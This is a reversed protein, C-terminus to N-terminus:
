KNLIENIKYNVNRQAELVDMFRQPGTDDLLSELFMMNNAKDFIKERVEKTTYKMAIALENLDLRKLIEGLLMKDVSMILKTFTTDYKSIKSISCYKIIKDIQKALIVLKNTRYKEPIINKNIIETGYRIIALYCMEETIYKEPIFQLVYGDIDAALKYYEASKQGDPFDTWAITGGKKLAKLRLEITKYKEPMHDIAQWFTDVAIECLRTTIYKEPIYDLATWSETVALLAIEYNEYFYGSIRPNGGHWNKLKNIAEDKEM